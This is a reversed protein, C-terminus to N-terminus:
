PVPALDRIRPWPKGDYDIPPEIDDHVCVIRRYRGTLGGVLACQVEQAPDRSSLKTEYGTLLHVFGIGPLKIRVDEDVSIIRVRRLEERSMNDTDVLAKM